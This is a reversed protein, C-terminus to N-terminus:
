FRFRIGANVNYQQMFGDGVVVCQNSSDCFTSGNGRASFYARVELRLGINETLKFVAGGGLSMAFRSKSSLSNDDPNLHIAGLTAGLFSDM